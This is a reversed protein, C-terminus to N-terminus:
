SYRQASQRLFVVTTVRDTPAATSGTQLWQPPVSGSWARRGRRRGATRPSGARSGPRDRGREGPEVLVVRLADGAPHLLHALLHALLRALIEVFLDVLGHLFRFFSFSAPAPSSVPPTSPPPRHGAIRDTRPRRRRRRRQDDEDDKEEALLVRPLDGPGQDALGLGLLDLVELGEDAADPVAEPGQGLVGELGAGSSSRLSARSFRSPRIWRPSFSRSVFFCSM